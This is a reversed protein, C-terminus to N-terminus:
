GTCDGCPFACALSSAGKRASRAHMTLTHMGQKPAQPARSAHMKNAALYSLEAALSQRMDLLKAVCSSPLVIMCM